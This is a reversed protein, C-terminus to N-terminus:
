TCDRQSRHKPKCAIHCERREIWPSGASVFKFAAVALQEDPLIEAAPGIMRCRGPIDVHRIARLGGLEPSPVAQTTDDRHSLAFYLDSVQRSAFGIHQM